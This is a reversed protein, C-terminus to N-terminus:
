KIEDIYNINFDHDGLLERDSYNRVIQEAEEKNKADVEYCNLISVGIYFKKYESSAERRIKSWDGDSKVHIRDGFHDEALILTDVVYKDYPKRATKCCNFGEGDSERRGHNRSFSFTEHSDDGIGNFSILEDTIYPFGGDGSGNGLVGETSSDDLLTLCAEKFGAWKDRPLENNIYWYHTYGMKNIQKTNM